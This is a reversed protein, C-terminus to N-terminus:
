LKNRILSDLGQQLVEKKLKRGIFIIQSLRKGEEEEGEGEWKEGISPQIDFLDHVGQVIHKEPEGVISVVGKVRFIDMTDEGKEVTLWLLSGLWLTLERTDFSGHMKLTVTTVANKHNHLAGSTNAIIPQHHLDHGHDVDSCGEEACPPHSDTATTATANTPMALAPDLVSLRSFDFSKVNLIDDLNISSRETFVVKAIHNINTVRSKIHTREEESVLDKKNMLVVDAYAIQLQAENVENEKSEDDLHREVHKCDVVTVVGDLYLKSELEADLWFSAALPGPNAMGTTEILIYDFKNRRTLLKEITVILEDKM